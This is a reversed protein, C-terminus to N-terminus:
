WRLSRTTPRPTSGGARVSLSVAGTEFRVDILLGDVSLGGSAAAPLDPEKELSILWWVPGSVVGRLELRTSPEILAYTRSWWGDFPETHGTVASPRGAARLALRRGSRLGIAEDAPDWDATPGLPLSLAYREGPPGEVWDAVVVGRASLVVVRAVARPPRHRRYADHAAWLVLHEGIQM